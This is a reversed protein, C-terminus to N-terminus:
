SRSLTFYSFRIQSTILESVQPKSLKLDQEVVESLFTSDKKTSAAEKSAQVRMM